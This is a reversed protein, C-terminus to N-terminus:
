CFSVVFRTLNRLDVNNAHEEESFDWRMQVLQPIDKLTALRVLM